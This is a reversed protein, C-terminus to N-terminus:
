DCSVIYINLPHQHLFTAWRLGPGQLPRARGHRPHPGGGPQEDERIGVTCQLHGAWNGWHVPSVIDAPSPSYHLGVCCSHLTEFWEEFSSNYHGVVRPGPASINRCVRFNYTKCCLRRKIVFIQLLLTIKKHPYTSNWIHCPMYCNYMRTSKFISKSM